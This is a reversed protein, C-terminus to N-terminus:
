KRAILTRTSPKKGSSFIFFLVKEAKEAKEDLKLLTLIDHKPLMEELIAHKAQKPRSFVTMM